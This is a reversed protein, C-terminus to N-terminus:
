PWQVCLHFECLVFPRRPYSFFPRGSAEIGAWGRARCTAGKGMRSAAAGEPGVRGAASLDRRILHAMQRQSSIACYQSNVGLNVSRTHGGRPAGGGLRESARFSSRILPGGQVYRPASTSPFVMDCIQVLAAAACRRSRKCIM